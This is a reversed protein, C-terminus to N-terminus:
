MKRDVKRSKDEPSSFLKLVLSASLTDILWPSQLTTFSLTWSELRIVFPKCSGLVPLPLCCLSLLLLLTHAITNGGLVSILYESTQKNRETREPGSRRDAPSVIISSCWVSPELHPLILCILGSYGGVEWRATHEPWVSPWVPACTTLSRPHSSPPSSSFCISTIYQGEQSRM